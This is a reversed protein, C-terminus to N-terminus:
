LNGQADWWRMWSTVRNLYRGRWVGLEVGLRAIPFHGRENAPVPEYGGGNLGYVELDGSEVGFIAYYSARVVQECIWFNGTWPTRDREESGDESAFELVILPPIVEKWLVYSRRHHGNLDPPVGPVYFWDPAEAGREPPDSEKWYIGCDRGIAFHGDPHRQQLVPLISDTLLMSQPHEDFNKVFTGDEEPLQTHDPLVIGPAGTGETEPLDLHGPLVIPKYKSTPTSM